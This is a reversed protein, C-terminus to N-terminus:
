EGIIDRTAQRLTEKHSEIAAETAGSRRMRIEWPEIGLSAAESEDKRNQEIESLEQLSLGLADAEQERPNGTNSRKPTM